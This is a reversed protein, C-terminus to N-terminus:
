FSSLINVTKVQGAQTAVERAAEFCDEFNITHKCEMDNQPAAM